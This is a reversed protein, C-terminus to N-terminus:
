WILEKYSNFEERRQLPIIKHKYNDYISQSFVTLHCGMAGLVYFLGM